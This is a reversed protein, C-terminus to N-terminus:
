GAWGRRAIGLANVKEYLEIRLAELKDKPGRQLLEHMDIDDMLAQKALLVAKERHRRRRHRAHRAPV